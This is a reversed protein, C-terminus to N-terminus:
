FVGEKRKLRPVGRKEHKKILFAESPILDLFFM